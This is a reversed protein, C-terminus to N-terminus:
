QAVRVLAPRIVLDGVRYGPRVVEIIHGGEHGDVAEHSIAEHYRPDFPMGPEAPVQEVGQAELVSRLKRYILEIGEAWAAGKGRQPRNQLALELDDLVELFGKAVEAVLQQRQREQQEAQRRKYNAFAARERTWGDLYEQAQARVTELEQALASLRAEPDEVAAQAEQSTPAGKQTAARVETPNREGAEPSSAEEPRKTEEPIQEEPYKKEDMM